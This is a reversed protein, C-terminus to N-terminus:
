HARWRCSGPSRTPRNLRFFGAVAGSLSFSWAAVSAILPTYWAAQIIEFSGQPSTPSRSGASPRRHCRSRRGARGDQNRARARSHHRRAMSDAGAPLGARYDGDEARRPQRRPHDDVTASAARGSHDLSPMGQERTHTPTRANAPNNLDLHVGRGPKRLRQRQREAERRQREQEHRHRDEVELRGQQPPRHRTPARHSPMGIAPKRARVPRGCRAPREGPDGEGREEDICAIGHVRNGVHPIGRRPRRESSCSAARSVASNSCAPRM